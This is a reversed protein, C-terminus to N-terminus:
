RNVSGMLATPYRDGAAVGKPAIADLAALDEPELTVKLAGVNEELTAVRKTGPIPLCGADKALV